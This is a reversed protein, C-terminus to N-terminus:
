DGGPQLGLDSLLSLIAANWGAPGPLTTRRIRGEAEGRLKPIAPAHDNRVIVGHDARELMEVDNPADGLAITAAPRHTDILRRMQDAKTRGLSLTLFRGGSRASIGADALAHLFRARDEDSGRWLGPETHARMRAREAAGLSLGTMEAVEEPSMDGFGRFGQRLVGPLADLRDRITRYEAGDNDPQGPVALAAGNEVIAPWPHLSLAAHLPAIEAATKSTALILPVSLERLAELAPRAADHNYDGHDLLTGDLDTFVMLRLPGERATM